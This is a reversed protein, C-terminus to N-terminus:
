GEVEEEWGVRDSREERRCVWFLALSWVRERELLNFLLEFVDLFSHVLLHADLLGISSQCRRVQPISLSILHTM